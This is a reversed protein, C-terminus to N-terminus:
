KGHGKEKQKDHGKGPNNGSHISSNYHDRYKGDMTDCNLKIRSDGSGLDLCNAQWWHYEKDDWDLNVKIEDGSIQIGDGNKNPPAAHAAGQLTLLSLLLINRRLKTMALLGM